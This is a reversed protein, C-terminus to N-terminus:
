TAETISRVKDTQESFLTTLVTLLGARRELVQQLRRAESAGLEELATVAETLGWVDGRYRELAEAHIRSLDAWAELQERVTQGGPTRSETLAAEVSHTASETLQDVARLHDAARAGADDLAAAAERTTRAQEDVARVSRLASEVDERASRVAQELVVLAMAASDALALLERTREAGVQQALSRAERRSTVRSTAEQTSVM